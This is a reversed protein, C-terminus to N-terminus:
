QSVRSLQQGTPEEGSSWLWLSGTLLTLQSWSLPLFSAIEVEVSPCTLEQCVLKSQCSTIRSFQQLVKKSFCYVEVREPETTPCGSSSHAWLANSEPGPHPSSRGRLLLKERALGCWPSPTVKVTCVSTFHQKEAAIKKKKAIDGAQVCNQENQKRLVCLDHQPCLMAQDDRTVLVSLSWCFLNNTNVFGVFSRHISHLLVGEKGPVEQSCPVLMSAEPRVDNGPGWDHCEPLIWVWLKLQPCYGQTEFLDTYISLWQQSSHSPHWKHFVSFNVQFLDACWCFCFDFIQIWWCWWRRWLM